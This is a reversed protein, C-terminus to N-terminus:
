LSWGKILMRKLQRSSKELNAQVRISLYELIFTM